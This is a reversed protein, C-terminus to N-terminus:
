MEPISKKSRLVLVFRPGLCFRFPRLEPPEAGTDDKVADWIGMQVHVIPRQPVVGFVIVSSNPATAPKRVLSATSTQKRPEGTLGSSGLATILREVLGPYSSYLNKTTRVGGAHTGIWGSDVPWRRRGVGDRWGMV